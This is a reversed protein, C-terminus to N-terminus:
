IYILGENINGYSVAEQTSIRFASLYALVSDAQHWNALDTIQLNPHNIRLAELFLDLDKKYHHRMNDSAVSTIYGKPYTEYIQVSSNDNIIKDRLAIARATLGGLFMPSMANLLKDCKRYFYQNGKGYIGPPVSLPADITIFHPQREDIFDLIFQDADKKKESQILNLQQDDHKYCISTTGAMKSGFDIGAIM